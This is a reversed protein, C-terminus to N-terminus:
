NEAKMAFQDPFQTYIFERISKAYDLARDMDQKEIRIENPYRSQISFGSLVSCKEYIVSFQSAINECLKELEELDHIRPPVIDNLVLFGKLFKEISQLCHFCEIEYPVPWMNKSSFIALELDNNALKIWQQLESKKDM